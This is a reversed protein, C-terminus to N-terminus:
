ASYERLRPRLGVWALLCIIAAFVVATISLERAERESRAVADELAAYDISITKAIAKDFESLAAKAPKGPLTQAAGIWAQHRTTAEEAAEQEGAIAANNLEQGLAARLKEDAGTLAKRYVGARSTDLAARSQEAAERYALARASWLAAVSGAADKTAIKLDADIRRISQGADVVFVFAAITAAFLGLNLARRTRGALIVQVALLAFGLIGASVILVIAAPAAAQQKAWAEALAARDATELDAVAPLVRQDMMSVAQRYAEMQRKDRAIQIQDTWASAEAAIQRLLQREANSRANASADIIASNLENRHTTFAGRAAEAGEGGLLEEAACADMAALATAIEDAAAIGPATERGIQTAANGRNVASATVILAMLVSAITVAWGGAKLLRPTEWSM